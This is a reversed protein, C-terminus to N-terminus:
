RGRCCGKKRYKEDEEAIAPYNIKKWKVKGTERELTLLRGILDDTRWRTHMVVIAGGPALRTLMGTAFNKWLKKSELESDADESNKIPDDIIMLHAGRGTIAAGAGVFRIGGGKHTIM